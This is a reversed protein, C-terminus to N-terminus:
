IQMELGLHLGPLSDRAVKDDKGGPLNSLGLHVTNQNSNYRVVAVM